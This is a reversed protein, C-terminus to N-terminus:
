EAVAVAIVAFDLSALTMLSKVLCNDLGGGDNTWPPSTHLPVQTPMEQSLEPRTVLM